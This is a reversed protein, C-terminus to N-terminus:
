DDFFLEEIPKEFFKAMKFALKMSPDYKGSEIAIITQRTVGLALALDEQTMNRIARQVRITNKM